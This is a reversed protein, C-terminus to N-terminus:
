KKIMRKKFFEALKTAYNSATGVEIFDINNKKFTSELSTWRQIIKNKMALQLAQNSLDLTKLENREPDFFDALGTRPLMVENRDFIIIPILDHKKSGLFLAQEYNADIFDSILFTITRKKQVNLLFRLASDINTKGNPIESSLIERIIRLVHSKGKQPPIYKVITETFLIVGVKDNNKLASFALVASIETALELKTKNESGFLQSSSVDIMLMLTLEREETYTKVFPKSSRATVNWDIDRVDDGIQYERVESFEMGRGKFVSHYEGSFVETVLGKTTIEIQRVKKLIDNTNM